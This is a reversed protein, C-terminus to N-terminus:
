NLVIHAIDKCQLFRKQIEKQRIKRVLTLHSTVILIFLM